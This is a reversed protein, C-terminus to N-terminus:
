GHAILFAFRIVHLPCYADDLCNCWGPRRGLSSSRGQRRRSNIFAQM